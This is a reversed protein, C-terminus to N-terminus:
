ASQWALGRQEGGGSCLEGTQPAPSLTVRIQHASPFEFNSFAVGGMECTLVVLHSGFWGASSEIALGISVM